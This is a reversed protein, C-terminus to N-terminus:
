MSIVTGGDFQELTWRTVDVQIAVVISRDVSDRELAEMAIVCLVSAAGWRTHGRRLMIAGRRVTRRLTRRAKQYVAETLYLDSATLDGSRHARMQNSFLSLGIATELTKRAVMAATRPWDPHSSAREIEPAMSLGYWRCGRPAQVSNARALALLFM